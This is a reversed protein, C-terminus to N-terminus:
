APVMDLSPAADMVRWLKDPGHRAVLSEVLLRAGIWNLGQAQSDVRGSIVSALLFPAIRGLMLGSRACSLRPGELASEEHIFLRAVREGIKIDFAEGAVLVPGDETHIHFTQTM